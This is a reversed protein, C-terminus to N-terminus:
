KEKMMEKEDCCNETADRAKSMKKEQSRSRTADRQLIENEHIVDIQELLVLVKGLGKVLFLCPIKLPSHASRFNCVIEGFLLMATAMRRSTVSVPNGFMLASCLCVELTGKIANRSLSAVLPRCCGIASGCLCLDFMVQM